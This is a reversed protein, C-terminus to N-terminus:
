AVPDLIMLAAGNQAQQFNYEFLRPTTLADVVEAEGPPLDDPTLRTIPTLTEGLPVDLQAGLDQRRLYVVTGTTNEDADPRPPLFAVVSKVGDVYHFAYLALELAERRLLRHRATTPEGESISCRQGLGCMNFMWADDAEEFKVVDAETPGSPIAFAAVPVAEGQAQVALPSSQVAVLQRGSPLRYHSAVFDSIEKMRPTAGETTPEWESWAVSSSSGGGGAVVVALGASSGLIVALLAYALAFRKGYLPPRYGAPPAPAPTSTRTAPLKEAQQATSENLTLDDAM